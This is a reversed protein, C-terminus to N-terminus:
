SSSMVLDMNVFAGNDSLYYGLRVGVLPPNGAGRCFIAAREPIFWAPGSYRASLGVRAIAEIEPLGLFKTWDANPVAPVLYPKTPNSTRIRLIEFISEDQCFQSSIASELVSSVFLKMQPTLKFFVILLISTHNFLNFFRLYVSKWSQAVVATTQRQMGYTDSLIGVTRFGLSIDFAWGNMQNNNIAVRQYRFNDPPEGTFEPREVVRPFFFSQVRRVGNPEPTYSDLLDGSVRLTPDLALPRGVSGINIELDLIVNIERALTMGLEVVGNLNVGLAQLAQSGSAELESNPPNVLRALIQPKRVAPTDTTWIWQIFIDYVLANNICAELYYKLTLEQIVLLEATGLVALLAKERQSGEEEYWNSLLLSQDLSLDLFLFVKKLIEVTNDSIQLLSIYKLQGDGSAQAFYLYFMDELQATLGDGETNPIKSISIYAYLPRSWFILFEYHLNTDAFSPAVVALAKPVGEVPLPSFSGGNRIVASGYNNILTIMISSTDARVGAGVIERIGLKSKKVKIKQKATDTSIEENFGKKHQRFGPIQLGVRISIMKTRKKNGRGMSEVIGNFHPDNLATQGTDANTFGDDDPPNTRFNDIDMPESDRDGLRSGEAVDLYPVVGLRILLTFQFDPSLSKSTSIRKFAPRHGIEISRVTPQGLSIYTPADSLLTIVAKLELADELDQYALKDLNEDSYDTDADYGYLANRARASTFINLSYTQSVKKRDYATKLKYSTSSDVELFAINRLYEGGQSERWIQWILRGLEQANTIDSIRNEVLLLRDKGSTAVQIVDQNGNWQFHTRKYTSPIVSQKRKNTKSAPDPDAFGFMGNVLTSGGFAAQAPFQFIETEEKVISLSSIQGTVGASGQGAHTLSIIVTAEPTDKSAADQLRIGISNIRLGHFKSSWTTLMKEVAGVEPTQILTTWIDQNNSGDGNMPATVAFLEDPSYNLKSQIELLSKVTAPNRLASITVFNLEFGTFAAAPNDAQYQNNLINWSVWLLKYYDSDVKANSSEDFNVIMHGAPLSITFQIAGSPALSNPTWTILAYSKDDDNIAGGFLRNFLDIISAPCSIGLAKPQTKLNYDRKLEEELETTDARKKFINESPLSTHTGTSDGGVIAVRKLHLSAPLRPTLISSKCTAGLVLLLQIFLRFRFSIRQLCVM